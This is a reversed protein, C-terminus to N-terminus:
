AATDVRGLRDLAEETIRRVNALQQLQDLTDLASLSHAMVQERNGVKLYAKVRTMRHAVVMFLEREKDRTKTLVLTLVARKGGTM